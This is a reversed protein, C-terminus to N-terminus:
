RPRRRTGAPSSRSLMGAALVRAIDPDVRGTPEASTPSGPRDRGSGDIAYRETPGPQRRVVERLMAKPITAGPSRIGMVGASQQEEETVSRLRLLRHAARGARHALEDREAKRGTEGSGGPSRSAISVGGPRLEIGLADGDRVARM